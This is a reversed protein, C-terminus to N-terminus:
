AARHGTVLDAGGRGAARGPRPDRAALAIQGLPQLGSVEDHMVPFSPRLAEVAVVPAPLRKEAVVATTERCAFGIGVRDPVHQPDGGVPAPPLDHDAPIRSEPALDPD